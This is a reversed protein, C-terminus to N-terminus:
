LLAYLDHWIYHSQYNQLCHRSLVGCHQVTLYLICLMCTVCFYITFFVSITEFM